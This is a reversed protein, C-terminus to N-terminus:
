KRHRVANKRHLHSHSSHGAHDSHGELELTVESLKKLTEEILGLSPKLISIDKKHKIAQEIDGHLDELGAKIAHLERPASM